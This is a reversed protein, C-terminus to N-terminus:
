TTLLSPIYQTRDLMKISDTVVEIRMTSANFDILELGTNHRSSTFHAAFVKRLEVPSAVFHLRELVIYRLHHQWM